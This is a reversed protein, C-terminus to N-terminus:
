KIKLPMNEYNNNFRKDQKFQKKQGKRKFIICMFVFYMTYYDINNGRFHHDFM